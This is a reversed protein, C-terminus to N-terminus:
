THSPSTSGPIDFAFSDVYCWFWDEGPEFSQIVPHASEHFHATAHKNPSNDCCGVHACATCRRLHVWHGGIRLCDECGNSSADETVITELHDCTAM